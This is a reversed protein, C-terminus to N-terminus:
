SVVGCLEQASTKGGFHRLTRLATSCLLVLRCFGLNGLSFLKRLRRKYAGQYISPYLLHHHTHYTTSVKVEMLLMEKLGILFMGRKVLLLLAVGGRARLDVKGYSPRLGSWNRRRLKVVSEFGSSTRSLSM